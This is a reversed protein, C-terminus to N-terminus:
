NYTYNQLIIQFSLNFLLYTLKKDKRKNFVYKKGSIQWSTRHTGRINGGSAFKSVSINVNM